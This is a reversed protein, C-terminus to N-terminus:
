LIRKFEPCTSKKYYAGFYLAYLSVGSHSMAALSLLWFIQGASMHMAVNPLSTIEEGDTGGGNQAVGIAFQSLDPIDTVALQQIKQFNRRVSGHPRTRGQHSDVQLHGTSPNV